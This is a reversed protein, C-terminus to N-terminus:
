DKDPWVSADQRADELQRFLRSLVTCSQQNLAASSVAYRAADLYTRGSAMAARGIIDAEEAGVTREIIARAASDDASLMDLDDIAEAERVETSQIRLLNPGGLVASIYTLGSPWRCFPQRGPRARARLNPM